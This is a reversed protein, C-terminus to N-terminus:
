AGVLEGEPQKETARVQELIKEELQKTSLFQVAKKPVRVIIETGAINSEDAPHIEATASDPFGAALLIIGPVTVIPDGVALADAIEHLRAIAIKCRYDPLMSEAQKLLPAHNIKEEFEAASITALEVHLNKVFSIQVKSDKLVFASRIDPYHPRLATLLYSGLPGHGLTVQKGQYKVVLHERATRDGRDIKKASKGLVKPGIAAPTGLPLPTQASAPKKPEPKKPPATKSQLKKGLLEEPGIFLDLLSGLKGAALGSIVDACDNRLSDSQDSVMQWLEPTYPLLAEVGPGHGYDKDRKFIPANLTKPKMEALTGYCEFANNSSSRSKEPVEWGCYMLKGGKGICYYQREASISLSVDRAQKYNNRGNSVDVSINIMPVWIPSPTAGGKIAAKIKQELGAVSPSEHQDFGFTAYFYRKTTEFYVAVQKDPFKEFKLRLIPQPGSPKSPSKKKTSM